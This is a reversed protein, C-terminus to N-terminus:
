PASRRQFNTLQITGGSNVDWAFLNQNRNFVVMSSNMIFSPNFEPDVTQTIRREKNTKVEGFYIDGERSFTYATSDNNYAVANASVIKKQMENSAKQPILNAPTIFYISDSTKNEPNWSFFLFKGDRSWYPSSPSTGIWKPDRMILDVTLSDIRTQGICNFSILILLIVFTKRM